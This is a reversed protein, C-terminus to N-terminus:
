VDGRKYEEPTLLNLNLKSNAFLLVNETFESFTKKDMKSTESYIIFTEGTRKNASETYHGFEIKLLCKVEDLTYGTCDAIKGFCYHLYANQNNSRKSIENIQNCYKCTFIM